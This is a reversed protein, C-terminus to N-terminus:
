GKRATLFTDDADACTFGIGDQGYTFALTRLSDRLRAQQYDPVHALIIACGEADGEYFGTGRTVALICGAGKVDFITRAIFDEWQTDQMPEKGINRGISIAVTKM